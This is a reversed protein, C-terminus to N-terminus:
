PQTEVVQEQEATIREKKIVEGLFLIIQNSASPNPSINRNSM